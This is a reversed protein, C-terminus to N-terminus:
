CGEESGSKLAQQVAACQAAADQLSNHATVKGSWDFDMIDFLTRTDRMNRYDWCDDKGYMHRAFSWIPFDFNGHSWFFAKAPDGLYELWRDWTDIVSELGVPTPNYLGKRAAEPAETLWWQLTDPEVGLTADFCSSLEVNSYYSGAIDINTGYPDFPVTAISLIACGPRVGLTELDVM